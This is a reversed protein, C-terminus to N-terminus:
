ATLRAELREVAPFLLNNEKHVHLHTDDELQELGAYLAAYSACGDPPVRYADTSHRLRALLEGVRDHEVLMVAIPNRVSGCHFSPAVDATAMERVMPFLVQEEKVLHPEIDSRIETVLARVEALEPHREGHVGLVKDALASLRPLEAWLYRHHTQELHDVLQAVGMSAWPAPAEDTAAGGLESAVAVPDLGLETCAEALTRAGGCCYDIGRRELQRALSPHATVLDGLRTSPTIMANM